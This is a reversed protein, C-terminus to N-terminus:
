NLEIKSGISMSDMRQFWAYVNGELVLVDLLLMQPTMRIVLYDQNPFESQFHLPLSKRLLGMRVQAGYKQSINNKYFLKAPDRDKKPGVIAIKLESSAIPYVVDILFFHQLGYFNSSRIPKFIKAQASGQKVSFTSINRGNPLQFDILQGKGLYVTDSDQLNMKKVQRMSSFSDNLREVLVPRFMYIMGINIMVILIISLNIWSFSQYFLRKIPISLNINHEVSSVAPKQIFSIGQRRLLGYIMLTLLVGGIFIQPALVNLLITSALIIYYYFPKLQQTHRLALGGWILYVPFTYFLLREVMLAYFIQSWICILYFGLAKQKRSAGIFGIIALPALSQFGGCLSQLSLIRRLRDPEMWIKKIEEIYYQDFRKFGSDISYFKEALHNIYATDSLSFLLFRTFFFALLAAACLALTRGIAQFSYWRQYKAFHYVPILFLSTERNLIGVLLSFAFLRDNNTLISLIGLEIFFFSLPDVHIYYYLSDHFGPNSILASLIAINTLKNCGVIRLNLYALAITGILAAITICYYANTLALPMLYALRPTLLRLGHPPSIVSLPNLSQTFYLYPDGILEDTAGSIFSQILVILTTVGFLTIIERRNTFKFDQDM